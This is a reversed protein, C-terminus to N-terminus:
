DWLHYLGCVLADVAVPPQLPIHPGPQPFPSCRMRQPAAAFPPLHFPVLFSTVVEQLSSFLTRLAIQIESLTKKSPIYATNMERSPM